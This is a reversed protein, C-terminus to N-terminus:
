SADLLHLDEAEEKDKAKEMQWVHLDELTAQLKLAEAEVHACEGRGSNASKQCPTMSSKLVECTARVQIICSEPYFRFHGLDEEPLTSM